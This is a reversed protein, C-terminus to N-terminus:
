PRRSGADGQRESYIETDVVWNIAGGYGKQVTFSHDTTGIVDAKPDGWIDIDRHPEPVIRKPTLTITDGDTKFLALLAILKLVRPPPMEDLAFSKQYFRLCSAVEDNFSQHRPIYPAATTGPNLMAQEVVFGNGRDYAHGRGDSRELLRIRVGIVGGSPINEIRQHPHQAFIFGHPNVAHVSEPGLPITVMTEKDSYMLQLGIRDTQGLAKIKISFTLNENITLLTTANDLTQYLECGNQENATPAKVIEVQAARYTGPLTPAVRMYRITSADGLMNKVYWRDAGYLTLGNALEHASGRQWLSFNSNFLYNKQQYTEVPSEKSEVACGALWLALALTSLLTLKNM